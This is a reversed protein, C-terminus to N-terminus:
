KKNVSANWERIAKKDANCKALDSKLAIAKNALDSNVRLSVPTEPCDQILYEPVSLVLTKPPKSACATM